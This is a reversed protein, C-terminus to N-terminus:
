RFFLYKPITFLASALRVRQKYGKSLTQIKKHTVDKLDAFRLSM